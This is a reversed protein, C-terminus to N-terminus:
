FRDCAPCIREESSVFYLAGCSRCKNLWQDLTFGGCGLCVYTEWDEGPERPIEASWAEVEKRLDDGVPVVAQQECVECWAVDDDVGHKPHKWFPDGAAAYADAAGTPYIEFTGCVLCSPYGDGVLFSRKGCTPCNAVLGGKEKHGGIELRVEEFRAALFEESRMMQKRAVDLQQQQKDNLTGLFGAELLRLAYHWAQWQVALVSARPENCSFHVFRNRLFRLRNFARDAEQDLDVGCLASLRDRAINYNVSVFDGREFSEKRYDDINRLVLSWHEQMLRAKLLLEIGEYLQITSYKAQQEPSLQECWLDSAARVIFDLANEIVHAEM